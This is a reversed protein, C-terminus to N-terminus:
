TVWRIIHENRSGRTLKIIERQPPPSMNDIPELSYLSFGNWCMQFNLNRCFSNEVSFLQFGRMRSLDGLLFHETLNIPCISRTNFYNRQYAMCESMVFSYVFNILILLFYKKFGRIKNSLVWYLFGWNLLHHVSPGISFYGASFTSAINFLSHKKCLCSHRAFDHGAM